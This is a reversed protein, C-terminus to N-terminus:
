AAYKDLWETPSLMGLSKHPRNNNYELIFAHIAVRAEHLSKFNKQWLCEEKLTRFWREIMGNQEPSYPTIFQQRIGAKSAAQAFLKAGFVLGNDSRLELGWSPRRRILADELAAVAVDAKGSNSVRWGVISRDCCDILATIHCWGDRETPFHSTDIAWRRNSRDVESKWQQVRPRMGKPRKNMIWGKRKIIRYVAKWNVYQSRERNLRWTIRRVGYHPYRDIIARIETTLAM